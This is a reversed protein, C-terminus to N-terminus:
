WLLSSFVNRLVVKPGILVNEEKYSQVGSLILKICNGHTMEDPDFSHMYIKTRHLNAM